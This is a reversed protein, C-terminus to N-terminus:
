GMAMWRERKRYLTSPSVGLAKAASPLSGGANDIAAEIAVRELEDLTLGRVANVVALLDTSQDPSPQAATVGGVPTEAAPMPPIQSALPFAAAPLDPGPHMVAARRMVNQLERVNGPWRYQELTALQASGLPHFTKSEERAFRQLFAEALERVDGTRERLPPMHLPVV